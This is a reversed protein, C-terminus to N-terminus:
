GELLRQTNNEDNSIISTKQKKDHKFVGNGVFILPMRSKDCHLRSSQWFDEFLRQALIHTVMDCEAESSFSDICKM